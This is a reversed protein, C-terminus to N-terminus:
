FCKQKKILLLSKKKFNYLIKYIDYKLSQWSEQFNKPHQKTNQPIM